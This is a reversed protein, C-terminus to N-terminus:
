ARIKENRAFDSQVAMLRPSGAAGVPTGRKLARSICALCGRYQVEKLVIPAM